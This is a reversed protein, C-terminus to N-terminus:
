HSGDAPSQADLVIVNQVLSICPSGRKACAGGFVTKQGSSGLPRFPFLFLCIPRESWDIRRLQRCGVELMSPMHHKNVHASCHEIQEFYTVNNQNNNHNVCLSHWDSSFDFCFCCFNKYTRTQVIFITVPKEIFISQLLRTNQTCGRVNKTNLKPYPKRHM